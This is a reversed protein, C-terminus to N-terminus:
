VHTHSNPWQGPLTALQSCSPDTPHAMRCRTREATRLRCFCASNAHCYSEVSPISLCGQYHEYGALAAGIWGAHPGWHADVLPLQQHLPSWVLQRFAADIGTRFRGQALGLGGGFHCHRSRTLQGAPRDCLWYSPLKTSWQRPKPTAADSLRLLEATTQCPPTVGNRPCVRAILGPGSAIQELPVLWALQDHEDLGVHRASAFTGTLGLTGVYPKGDLVLSASIGTGVTVYLVVRHDSGAGCRAEALAAARVDAEVVTVLGTRQALQEAIPWGHWPITAASVIAGQPTVLEPVGM